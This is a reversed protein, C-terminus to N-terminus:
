GVGSVWDGSVVRTGPVRLRLRFRLRLGLRSEIGVVWYGIGKLGGQHWASCVPFWRETGPM